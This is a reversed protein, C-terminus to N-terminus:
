NILFFFFFLIVLPAADIMVSYEDTEHNRVIYLGMALLFLRTNAGRGADISMAKARMGLELWLPRLIFHPRIDWNIRYHSGFMLALTFLGGFVADFGESNPHRQVEVYIRPTIQQFLFIYVYTSSPFM